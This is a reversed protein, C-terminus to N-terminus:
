GASSNPRPTEPPETARTSRSGSRVPSSSTESSASSIPRFSRRNSQGQRCERQSTAMRPHAPASGRIQGGHLTEGALVMKLGNYDPPNHSGTIAVCSATQLHHAAFYVVPTAVCGIDIVDIGTSTLGEELAAAFEPGSLRGDRGVVITTQGRARAESGIAQGILAVTEATLRRASSAAFTM